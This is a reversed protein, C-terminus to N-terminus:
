KTCFIAVGKQTTLSADVNIQGTLASMKELTEKDIGNIDISGSVLLSNIISESPTSGSISSSSPDYSLIKAARIIGVLESMQTSIVSLAIDVSRLSEASTTIALSLTKLDNDKKLDEVVMEIAGKVAAEMITYTTDPASPVRNQGTGRTIQGLNDNSAM